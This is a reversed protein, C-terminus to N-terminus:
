APAGPCTVTLRNDAEAREDVAGTPDVDATLISGEACPPGEVEVLAREGPELGPTQAPTLPVGNVTVVVDFPGAATTGRNVVPVVYRAHEADAGARSNIALPRLNPRLDAQHCIPSTARDSAVRHGDRALWRYRVLTRYSAPAFLEVVRKTYVYRGVGPDSSLWRGFGPASLAHWNVQGKGRTQLTFRMQLKTAGKATRMRGEFVAARDAPDLASDCTLLRASGVPAASAAAPVLLACLLAATIVLRRM